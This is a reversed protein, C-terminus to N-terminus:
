SSILYELLTKVSYKKRIKWYIIRLININKLKYERFNEKIIIYQLISMYISAVVLFIILSYSLYMIILQQFNLSLNKVLLYYIMRAILIAIPLYAYNGSNSDIAKEVKFISTIATRQVNMGSKILYCIFLVLFAIGFYDKIYFLTIFVITMNIFNFIIVFILSINIKTLISIFYMILGFILYYSLFKLIYDKDLYVITNWVIYNFSINFIINGVLLIVIWRYINDIFKKVNELFVKEKFIM